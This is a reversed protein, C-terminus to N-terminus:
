IPLRNLAYSQLISFVVRILAASSAPFSILAYVILTVNSFILNGSSNAAVLSIFFLVTTSMVLSTFIKIADQIGTYRIIGSYTRFNIFVIANILTLILLKGSLDRISLTEFNLNNRILFALLLSCACIGIDILFIIWRPLINIKQIMKM